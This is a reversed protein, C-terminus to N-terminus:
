VIFVPSIIWRQFPFTPTFACVKGKGKARLEEVITFEARLGYNCHDIVTRRHCAITQRRLVVDCRIFVAHRLLTEVVSFKSGIVAEYETDTVCVPWYKTSM